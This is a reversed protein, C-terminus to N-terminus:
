RTRCACRDITVGSVTTRQCYHAPMENCRQHWVNAPIYLADDQSWDIRENDHIEYGRGKVVYGLAEFNHRHIDSKGGPPIRRLFCAVAREDFGNSGDILWQVNGHWLRDAAHLVRQHGDSRQADIREFLDM